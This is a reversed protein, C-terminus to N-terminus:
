IEESDTAPRPRARLLAWALGVLGILCCVAQPIGGLRTAMTGAGGVEVQVALIGPEFIGTEPRVTGDPGIV